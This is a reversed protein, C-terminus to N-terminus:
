QPILFVSLYSVVYNTNTFVCGWIHAIWLPCSVGTKKWHFKRVIFTEPNFGAPKLCFLLLKLPKSQSSPLTSASTIMKVWGFHPVVSLEQTVSGCLVEM